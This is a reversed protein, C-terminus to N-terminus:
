PRGEQAMEALRRRVAEIQEVPTSAGATIGVLRCGAFWQPDLEGPHEVQRTPVVARCLEALHATNASERGGVVVMAEVQQALALAGQQREFTATCITNHVVLERCAPALLAAARALPEPALTTQCVLGVRKRLAGLDIAGAAPIVLADGAAAAVAKIEPHGPDGLVVVQYGADALRRALRQAKRVFPCTADIVTLGRAEAEAIVAPPAGHSRIILTGAEAEAPSDVVRVGRSALSAVVAPNHILPGLTAVPGTAASVTRETLEVARRVGFCFGAKPAM